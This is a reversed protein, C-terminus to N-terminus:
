KGKKDDTKERSLLYLMGLIYAAGFVMKIINFSLLCLAGGFLGAYVGNISGKKLTTYSYGFVILSLIDLGIDIPNNIKFNLFSLITVLLMVITVKSANIARDKFEEDDKIKENNFFKSFMGGLNSTLESKTEEKKAKNSEITDKKQYYNIMNNQFDTNKDEINKGNDTFLRSQGDNVNSKINNPDINNNM